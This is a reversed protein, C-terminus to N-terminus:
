TGCNPRVKKEAERRALGTRWLWSNVLAELQVVQERTLEVYGGTGKEELRICEQGNAYFEVLELPGVYGLVNPM